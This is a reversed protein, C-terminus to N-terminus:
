SHEIHYTYDSFDVDLTAWEGCYSRRIRLRDPRSLSAELEGEVAFAQHSNRLRMLDMLAAVVPRKVERGIEEETYLHRNIDRGNKTKEMLQVDNQGALLGVYYVQPIGRAFFQVARAALYMADHNGLASYYTTNMQYIDLNNYEASNYIKKVNAGKEFIRNKTLEIAHDPLLDKVDVIGIGDHTDLTTFQKKPSRELWHKLYQGDHASLAHLLLVPLAFDYVWYGHEALKFQITYHEHIEPLIEVGFPSVISQLWALLEWIEPEVFFCSTGAKKVTYAFADLRILSAGKECMSTLTDRIFARTALKRVDLDIQDNGFTCWIKEVTGDALSAEVFPSRPKRKYIKGLQERTPEGREWFDSYRIFFDRYPSANGHQLYDQYYRSESSIHNVMFDFMLRYDRGLARVDDFSGFAPDVRDYCLPAFGRDGSSPFFPLIHVSGILGSFYRNLTRHLAELNGGLSDAYTILMIRNKM